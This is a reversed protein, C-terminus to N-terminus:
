KRGAPGDGPVHAKGARRLQREVRDLLWEPERLLRPPSEFIPVWPTSPTRTLSAALHRLLTTKGAGPNGLVAWRRTVWTHEEPDLDLIERLTWPRDFRMELTRSNLSTRSTVLSTDSRLELQVYVRDLLELETRQQFYPVLHEHDRAMKRLWADVLGTEGAGREKELDARLANLEALREPSEDEDLEDLLTGAIRV